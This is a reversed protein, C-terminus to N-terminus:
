DTLDKEISCKGGAFYRKLLYLTTGGVVVAAIIMANKDQFM